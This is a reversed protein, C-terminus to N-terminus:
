QQQILEEIQAIVKEVAALPEAAEAEFRYSVRPEHSPTYSCIFVFQDPGAGPELRFNRIELSNLRRVAAQWTLPDEPNSRPASAPSRRAPSAQSSREAEEPSRRFPQMAAAALEPPVNESSWLAAQSNAPPNARSAPAEREFVAQKADFNKRSPTNENEAFADWATTPITQPRASTEEVPRRDWRGELSTANGRTAPQPSPPAPWTVDSKAFDRPAPTKDDGFFPAEESSPGGDVPLSQGAPPVEIPSAVVPAFQPIGFIALMPVALIPALLLLSTVSSQM